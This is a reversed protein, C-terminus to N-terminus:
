HRHVQGDDNIFDFKTYRIRTADASNERVKFAADMALGRLTVSKGSPWNVEVRRISKANGLGIHLEFPSDGFSTGSNVVRHITRAGTPTAVEVLVRAGIASRNSAVGELKLGLWHNGHGPNGLLM